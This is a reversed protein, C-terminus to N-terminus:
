PNYVGLQLLTTTAENIPFATSVGSGSPVLRIHTPELINGTGSKFVDDASTIELEKWADVLDPDDLIKALIDPNDIM